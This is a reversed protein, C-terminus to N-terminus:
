FAVAFVPMPAILLPAFIILPAHAVLSFGSIVKGILFLIM